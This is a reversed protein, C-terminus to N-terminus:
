EILADRGSFLESPPTRKLIQPFTLIMIILLPKSRTNQGESIERDDDGPTMTPHLFESISTKTKLMNSSTSTRGWNDITM